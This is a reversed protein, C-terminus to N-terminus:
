CQWFFKAAETRAQDPSIGMDRLLHDSQEALESLTRRQHHRAAWLRVQRSIAQWLTSSSKQVSAHLPSAAGIPALTGQFTQKPM